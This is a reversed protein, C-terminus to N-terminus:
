KKDFPCTISRHKILEKACQQCITHGCKLILPTKEKRDYRHACIQCRLINDEIFVIQPKEFTSIAPQLSPIQQDSPMVLDNKLDQPRVADKSRIARIREELSRKGLISEQKRNEKPIM